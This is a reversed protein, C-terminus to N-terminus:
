NGNLARLTHGFAGFSIIKIGHIKSKEYAAGAVQDWTNYVLYEAKPELAAEDVEAGGVIYDTAMFIHLSSHGPLKLLAKNSAIMDFSSILGQTKYNLLADFLAM